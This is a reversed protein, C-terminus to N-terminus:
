FGESALDKEGPALPPAKPPMYKLKTEVGSGNSCTVDYPTQRSSDTHYIGNTFVITTCRPDSCAYRRAQYVSQLQGNLSKFMTRADGIQLTAMVQIAQPSPTNPQPPKLAMIDACAWATQPSDAIKQSAAYQNAPPQSVTPACAVVVLLLLPLPFYKLFM